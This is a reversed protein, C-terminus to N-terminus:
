LEMYPAMIKRLLQRAKWVRGAIASESCALANGAERYSLGDFVVLTLAARMDVPLRMVNDQLLEVFERHEVHEVPGITKQRRGDHEMSNPDSLAVTERDRRTRRRHDLAVRVTIASLWTKLRSRGEFRELGRYAKVFVDQTVMDARNANNTMRYALRYVYEQHCEMLQTFAQWDGKATREILCRENTENM